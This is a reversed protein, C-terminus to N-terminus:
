APRFFFLGQGAAAVWVALLAGLWEQGGTVSEVAGIDESRIGRSRLTLWVEALTTSPDRGKCVM